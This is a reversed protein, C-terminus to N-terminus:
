AYTGFHNSKKLKDVAENPLNDLHELAMELAERNQGSNRMNLHFFFMLFLTFVVIMGGWGHIMFGGYAVGGLSAFYGATLVRHAWKMRRLVSEVRDKSVVETEEEAM